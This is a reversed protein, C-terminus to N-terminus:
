FPQNEDAGGQDSKTGASLKKMPNIEKGTLLGSPCSWFVSTASLNRSANKRRIELNTVHGM